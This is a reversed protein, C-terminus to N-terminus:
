GPFPPLDTGEDFRIAALQTAHGVLRDASDWLECVEDVRGAGIQQAYMRVRLPGPAPVARLYTTLALTPVWGSRSIDFTAPPLADLFFLLALPDIPRDDAFSIWGKLEGRGTPQGVAWGLTSPDLRVDSRDMIAVTFQGGPPSAPLRMCENRPAVEFPVVSSWTPNSADDEVTPLTGLTLTADVCPRGAQSLVARVQSASRGARLIEAAVTAPGPDPAGIYTATAALVHQHTSGTARLSEAAARGAIALLYGGNPKPGVTFGADVDIDFTNATESPRVATAVDFEHTITTATAPSTEAM